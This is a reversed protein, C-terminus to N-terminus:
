VPHEEDDEDEPGAIGTRLFAGLILSLGLFVLVLPWWQIVFERFAIGTLLFLTLVVSFFLFVIGPVLLSVRVRFGHTFGYPIISLGVIGMFVPWLQALSLKFVPALVQNFLLMFAGSGFLLIGWLLYRPKAKRILVKYLYFAGLVTFVTPWWLTLGELFNNSWFLLVVGLGTLLLGAVLSKKLHPHADDKM